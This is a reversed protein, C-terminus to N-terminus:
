SSLLCTTRKKVAFALRIVRDAEYADFTCSPVETCDSLDQNACTLNHHVTVIMITPQLLLLLPPPPPSLLRCVTVNEDIKMQKLVAGGVYLGFPIGFM